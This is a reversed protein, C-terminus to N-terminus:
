IGLIPAWEDYFDREIRCLTAGAPVWSSAAVSCDSRQCVTKKTFPCLFGGNQGKCRLCDHRALERDLHLEIAKRNLEGHTEVDVDGSLDSRLTDLTEDIGWLWFYPALDSFPGRYRANAFVDCIGAEETEACGVYAALARSSLIPGPFKLVANLLLHGVIYSLLVRKEELDPEIDDPATKLVMDMLASNTTGLRAGYPLFENEATPVGLLDALVATPSRRHTLLDPRESVQDRIIRFGRFVGVIFPAAEHATTPVRLEFLNPEKPLAAPSGRSFDGVLITRMQCGGVISSGFLGTRGSATLDYDTVVLLTESDVKRAFEDQVDVEEATPVWTRIEAESTPLLMQLQEELEGLLRRDDDILLISPM